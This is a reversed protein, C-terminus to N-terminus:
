YDSIYDSISDNTVYEPINIGGVINSFFTNLVQVTNEDNSVIENEEILAIKGKSTIKDSLFPKVTKLFAKNDTVNKEDLNRYYQTKTKRLLSVCYNRQKTYRSKNEDTRNKLFQNRFRTRKMIEKSITKNMFPLHNGRIYKQKCPAYQDLTDMCISLFENLGINNNESVINLLKPSEDRYIDNQFNKYDGYPIIRPQFKKYTTTTVTVTMRHFDPLGTEVVCSSQFCKANNVLILDRCSPNEPNKYCTPEKILCKLDYTDCLVTMDSNDMGVNYM